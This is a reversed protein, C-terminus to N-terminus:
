VLCGLRGTCSSAAPSVKQLRGNGYSHPKNRRFFSNLLPNSKLFERVVTGDALTCGSFRKALLGEFNTTRQIAFLLLKVEIEKARTRMIKALETRFSLPPPTPPSLFFCIHNEILLFIQFRVSYNLRNGLSVKMVFNFSIGLISELM